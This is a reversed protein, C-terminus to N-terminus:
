NQLPRGAAKLGEKMMGSGTMPMMMAAGNMSNMPGYNYSNGSGYGSGYMMYNMYNMPNMMNGYKMYGSGYMMPNMMNGYKMYGSNMMGFFVFLIIVYPLLVLFWSLGKYGKDCLWSLIYTWIFAFLLKVFVSIVGMGMFLAYVCALIAIVFYIKAPTCLKSFERNM